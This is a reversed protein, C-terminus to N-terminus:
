LGYTKGEFDADALGQNLRVDSYEYQGLLETKAEDAYSACMVPLLTEADLHYVLVRDPYAGGEGTYPLVRQFVYTPRNDVKGDGVYGLELEGRKKAILSYRLILDLAKAFGFQDITRAIVGEPQCLAAPRGKKTWKGEVYIARRAKVPNETWHMYVSYDKERFKVKVGQVKTLRGDLSEKKRFTCTYDVVNSYYRKQAKRLLDLPAERALRKIANGVSGRQDLVTTTPTAVAETAAFGIARTPQGLRSMLSGCQLCFATALGLGVVIRIRGGSVRQRIKTM